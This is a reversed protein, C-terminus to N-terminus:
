RRLIPPPVPQHEGDQKGFQMKMELLAAIDKLTVIGELEGGHIVLLLSRENRQMKELAQIADARSSVTNKSSIREAEQGVSRVEREDQSLEKVHDVTIIGIVKDDEEVPYSKHYNHSIYTEVLERITIYAPVVTPKRNMFRSVKEGELARRVILQRYTGEAANRLFSGILFSWVGGVFDGGLFRLLGLAMLLLGFSSGVISAIHTSKQLNGNFHWLVSRLVRGGDLPFAPVLNFAALVLNVYGLYAFVAAPLAQFSLAKAALLCVGGIAISTIPGAIAMWFETGPQAPEETMEAVGGFIFLTIGAMPLGRKRAVVSHAFEHVVISIFLGIAGFVGMAWYVAETQKPVMAPFVSDRLSWAVLVALLLWSWDIWVQFGSLKFLPIRNRLM